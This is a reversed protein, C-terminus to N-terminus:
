EREGRHAYAPYKFIRTAFDNQTLNEVAKGELRNDKLVLANEGQFLVTNLYIDYDTAQVLQFRVLTNHDVVEVAKEDFNADWGPPIREISKETFLIVPMRNAGKVAIRFSWGSWWTRRVWLEIPDGPLSVGRKHFEIGKSLESIRFGTSVGAHIHFTDSSKPHLLRYFPGRVPDGWVYSLAAMAWLLIAISWLIKRLLDGTYNAALGSM